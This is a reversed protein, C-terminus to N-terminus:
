EGGSPASPAYHDLPQAFAFATAWDFTCIDCCWEHVDQGDRNTHVDEVIAEGCHHCDHYTNM